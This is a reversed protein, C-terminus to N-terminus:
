PSEAYAAPLLFQESRISLPRREGFLLGQCFLGSEAFSVSLRKLKAKTWSSNKYVAYAQPSPPNLEQPGFVAEKDFVDLQVAQCPEVQMQQTWNRTWLFAEMMSYHTAEKLLREAVKPGLIYAAAGRKNKFIKRSVVQLTPNQWVPNRGVTHKYQAYELDYLYNWPEERSDIYDLVSKFGDSLLVDDELVCVKETQAAAKKWVVRHSFTCAIDQARVKRTWENAAKQLTAESLDSVSVGDIFEIDLGLRAAQRQQFERRLKNQPPNIMMIKM